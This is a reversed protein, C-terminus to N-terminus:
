LSHMYSNTAKRNGAEKRDEGTFAPPPPDRPEPPSHLVTAASPRSVGCLNISQAAHCEQFQLRDRVSLRCGKHEGGDTLM